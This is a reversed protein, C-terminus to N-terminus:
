RRFEVIKGKLLISHHCKVRNCLENVSKGVYFFLHFPSRECVYEYCPTSHVIKGQPKLIRLQDLLDKVPNQSHELWNHSMIGDYKKKIVGDWPLLTPRNVNIPLYPDYEDLKISLNNRAISATQNMGAGWNLYIGDPKAMLYNSLVNIEYKTTIDTRERYGTNYLKIHKKLMQDSNANITDIPGFILDCFSCQYRVLDNGWFMCKSYIKRDLDIPYDCIPCKM